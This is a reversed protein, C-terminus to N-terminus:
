RTQSNGLINVSSYSLKRMNLLDSTGCKQLSSCCLFTGLSFSAELDVLYLLTLSFVIINLLAVLCIWLMSEPWRFFHSFIKPRRLWFCFYLKRCWFLTNDGSHLNYLSPILGCTIGLCIAISCTDHFLYLGCSLINDLIKQTWSFSSEFTFGVESGV